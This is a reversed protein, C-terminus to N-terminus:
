VDNSERVIPELGAMAADSGETTYWTGNAFVSWTGDEHGAPPVIFFNGLDDVHTAGEPIFPASRKNWLDVAKDYASDRLHYMGPCSVRPGRAGCEDNHCQVWTRHEHYNPSAPSKCFPCPAIIYDERM